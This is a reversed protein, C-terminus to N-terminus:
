APVELKIPYIETFEKFSLGIRKALQKITIGYQTIYTKIIESMIQPFEEEIEIPEKRLWGKYSLYKRFNIYDQDSISKLSRARQILAAFSVKWKKKLNELKIPHLNDLDEKIDEEPMLFEAAFQNAENERIAKIEEETPIVKNNIFTYQNYHHLYVHGIEHAISFRIRDFTHNKNYIILPKRHAISTFCASFTNGKYMDNFTLNSDLKMPMIVFGAEETKKILEIVPGKELGFIERVKRAIGEPSIEEVDEPLKILQSDFNKFMEIIELRTRSVIAEVQKQTSLMLSADKRFDVHVETLESSKDFFSLPYDLSKAIKSKMFESVIAEGNELKSLRGQSIELKKSFSFQNLGRTERALEVMKGLKNEKKQM